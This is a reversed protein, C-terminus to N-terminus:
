GNKKLVYFIQTSQQHCRVLRKIATTARISRLCKAHVGSRPPDVIAAFKLERTAAAAAAAPSAASGQERAGATTTTATATPATATPAALSEKHQKFAKAIQGGM